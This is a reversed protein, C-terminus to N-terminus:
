YEVWSHGCENCRCESRPDCESIVELVIDGSGCNLCNLDPIDRRRAPVGESIDFFKSIVQKVRDFRAEKVFRTRVSGDPGLIEESLDFLRTERYCTINLVKEGKRIQLNEDDIEIFRLGKDILTEWDLREMINRGKYASEKEIVVSIERARRSYAKIHNLMSKRCCKMIKLWDQLDHGSERRIPVKRAIAGPIYGQAIVYAMAIDHTYQEHDTRDISSKFYPIAKVALHFRGTTKDEVVTCRTQECIQMIKEDSPRKSLPHVNSKVAPVCENAMDAALDEVFCNLQEAEQRFQRHYKDAPNALIARLMIDRATMVWVDSDWQNVRAGYELNM